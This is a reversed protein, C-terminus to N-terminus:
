SNQNVYHLSWLAIFIQFENQKKTKKNKNKKQKKTLEHRLM